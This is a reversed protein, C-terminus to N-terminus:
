HNDRMVTSFIERLICNCVLSYDIQFEAAMHVCTDIWDRTNEKVTVDDPFAHLQKM